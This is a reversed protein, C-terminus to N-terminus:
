YFYFDRCKAQRALGLDLHFRMDEEPWIEHYAIRVRVSTLETLGLLSGQEILARLQAQDRDRVVVVTEGEQTSQTQSSTQDCDAQGTRPGLRLEVM